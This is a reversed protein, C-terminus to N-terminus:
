HVPSGLCPPPPTSTNKKPLLGKTPSGSNGWSPLSSAPAVTGHLSTPVWAPRPNPAAPSPPEDERVLGLASSSRPTPVTSEPSRPKHFSFVTLVPLPRPVLALHSRAELGPKWNQSGLGPSFKAGFSCLGRFLSVMPLSADASGPKWWSSFCMVEASMEDALAPRMIKGSRLSYPLTILLFPFVPIDNLVTIDEVSERTRRHLHPQLRPQPAILSRSGYLNQLFVLCRMGEPGLQPPVSAAAAWLTLM